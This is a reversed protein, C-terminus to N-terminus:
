PCTPLFLIRYLSAGRDAQTILLDHWPANEVLGRLVRLEITGRRIGQAPLVVQAEFRVTDELVIGLYRTFEVESVSEFPVEFTGEPSRLFFFRDGGDNLLTENVQLNSVFVFTDPRNRDPFILADYTRARAAVACAPAAAVSALILCVVSGRIRQRM